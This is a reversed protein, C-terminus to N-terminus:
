SQTLFQLIYLEEQCLLNKKVFYRLKELLGCSGNLKRQIQDLQFNWGLLNLGLPEM